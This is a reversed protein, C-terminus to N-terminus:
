KGKHKDTRDKGNKGGQIYNLAQVYTLGNHLMLKFIRLKDDESIVETNVM